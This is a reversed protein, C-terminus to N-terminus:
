RDREPALGGGGGGPRPGDRRPGEAAGAADGAGQWGRRRALRHRPAGGAGGAAGAGAIGADGRAAVGGGGARVVGGDLRAGAGGASPWSTISPATRRWAPM